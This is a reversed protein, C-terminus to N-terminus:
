AGNYALRGNGYRLRDNIKDILVDVFNDDALIDGQIITQSPQTLKSDISQLLSVMEPSGVQPAGQNDGQLTGVVDNFNRKPVVLEGPELLFPVKDRGTLGPIGPGEVLGGDAAANVQSIQEAGYAITAAAAAVGLAYGVIPITAFGEFVSMAAKATSFTIQAIAAAKGITRLTANRSNQLQVLNATAQEVGKVEDSNMKQKLTAYATGYKIEDQLFQNRTEVDRKLKEKAFKRQAELQTNLSAQESAIDQQRLVEKGDVGQREIDAMTENKLQEFEVARDIDEQRQADELELIEARKEELLARKEADSEESLAKLNNIEEQKLAITEESAHENQLKLLEIEQANLELKLNTQRKKEAAIKDAIGKANEDQELGPPKIPKVESAAEAYGKKFADKLKQFGASIESEDFNYLGSFVQKLAGIAQTITLAFGQFVKLLRPWISDWHLAVETLAVILLGIGTAGILGQVALKTASAQVGAAAMAARFFIFAKTGLALATVLGTIAVGGAVLSATLNILEPSRSVNDFFAAFLKIGKEIVPAFKEGIAEQVDDFSAKLGKLAGVGKLAAESQGGFKSSLFSLTNALKESETANTNLQLGERALANLNSGITKGVLNSASALDIGKAAALDLTAKTLDQSVEVQGLYSQLIAQSKRIEDDSVGTLEQLKTAQATYKDLLDQSAIGQNQLAQTLQNTALQAGAFSHVALGIEATLAAFAVGSIKAVTNLEGELDETRAKMEDFATKANKADANIKILLDNDAM